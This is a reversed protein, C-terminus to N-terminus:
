LNGASSESAIADVIRKRVIEGLGGLVLGIAPNGFLTGAATV